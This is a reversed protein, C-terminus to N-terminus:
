YLDFRQTHYPNTWKNVSWDSTIRPVRRQRLAYCSLGQNAPEVTVADSTLDHSDSVTGEDVSDPDGADEGTDVNSLRYNVSSLKKSVRFPGEYVPALKATFNTGADSKPHTKIRVLDDM